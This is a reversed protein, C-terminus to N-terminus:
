KLHSFRQMLSPTAQLPFRDRTKTSRTCIGFLDETFPRQIFSKSKVREKFRRESDLSQAFHCLPSYLPVSPDGAMLSSQVNAGEARKSAIKM